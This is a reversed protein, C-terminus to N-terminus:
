WVSAATMSLMGEHRMLAIGALSMGVAPAWAVALDAVAVFARWLPGSTRHPARRKASGTACAYLDAFTTSSGLLCGACCCGSVVLLAAVAFAAALPALCQPMTTLAVSGPPCFDPDRRDFSGLPRPPPLHRQERTANCKVPHYLRGPAMAKRKCCRMRQRSPGPLRMDGVWTLSLEALTCWPLHACLTPVFVEHHGTAGGVLRGRVERALRRSLRLVPWAAKLSANRGCVSCGREIYGGPADRQLPLALLDADIANHAASFSRWSANALVIDDEIHWAREM